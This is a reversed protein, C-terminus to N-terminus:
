RIPEPKEGFLATGIRITTAGAQIATEFDHSMGMSLEPLGNQKALKTLLAFHLGAPENRPPLCMLGSIKLGIQRCVGLLSPVTELMAGSKQPEAGTNVQILCTLTRGQKRSEQHLAEALSPRDITEIGDFLAVAEKVKNIQLPGILHLRLDPYLPRYREWHARAEQVRNEGFFRLGAGLAEELTDPPQSKSVALLQVSSPDRRWLTAQKNIRDQLEGLRSAIFGM